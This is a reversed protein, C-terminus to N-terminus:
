IEMNAKKAKNAIKISNPVEVNMSAKKAKFATELKPKETEIETERDINTNREFRPRETEFDTVDEDEEDNGLDDIVEDDRGLEDGFEDQGEQTASGEKLIEDRMTQIEDDSLKLINKLLYNKSFIDGEFEKFETYLELRQKFIDIKQRELFNSEKEWGIFFLESYENFEEETLISETIAIRKMIEILLPSFRQRLRNIFAFFKIESQEISTSNFDFITKSEGMLRSTPVKLANYLKQKFYDLDGTEGLNGTEDLIDVQTGKAGARNPFYLDETMSTVSASNTITGNETDYFRRQRVQQRIREVEAVAKDYGLNGVDVNFIRRAVSRSFRLPILLDELTQLQNVTKIVNHLHSLIVRDNYLGSDVRILEEEDYEFAVSDEGFNNNSSIDLYKWKKVEKDFYLGIPNMITLKLMNNSKDFGVGVVLQGDVYFRRCLVDINTDLQLLKVAKDFIAQLGDKLNDTVTVNDKFGLFCCSINDPVFAMENVIEDIADSVEPYASVRRYERILRAQRTLFSSVESNDNSMFPNFTAGTDVFGYIEQASLESEINPDDDLTTELKKKSLFTKKISETLANIENETIIDSDDKNTIHLLKKLQEFM